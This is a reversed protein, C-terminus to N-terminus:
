VTVCDCVCVEKAETAREKRKKAPQQQQAGGANPAVVTNTIDNGFRGRTTGAAAVKAVAGVRVAGNRRMVDAM